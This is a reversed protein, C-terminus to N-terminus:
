NINEILKVNETHATHHAHMLYLLIYVNVVTWTEPFRNLYCDHQRRFSLHRCRCSEIAIGSGNRCGDAHHKCAESTRHQPLWVCRLFSYIINLQKQADRTLGMEVCRVNLLWVSVM